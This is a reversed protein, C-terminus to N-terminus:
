SRVLRQDGIFNKQIAAQRKEVFGLPPESDRIQMKSIFQALAGGAAEDRHPSHRRDFLPERFENVFVRRTAENNKAVQNMILGRRAFRRLQQAIERRTAFDHDHGPVVVPLQAALDFHDVRKLGRLKMEVVTVACRLNGIANLNNSMMM